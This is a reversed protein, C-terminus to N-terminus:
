QLPIRYLNRHTNQRTYAYLTLSVASDVFWPSVTIKSQPLEDIRAIGSSPLRPLGSHQLVPLAYTNESLSPFYFFVLKGSGDWKVFCYGQCVNIAPGGDVAFAKSAILQDRNPDASDAAGAVVWHGDPSIAVIDLIRESTIKRRQSGDDKM